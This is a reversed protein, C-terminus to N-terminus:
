QKEGFYKLRVKDWFVTKLYWWAQVPHRLCYAKDQKCNPAFYITAKKTLGGPLIVTLQTKQPQNHSFDLYQISQHQAKKWDSMVAVSPSLEVTPAASLSTVFGYVDYPVLVVRVPNRGAIAYQNHVYLITNEQSLERTKQEPFIFPYQTERATVLLEPQTTFSFQCSQQQCELQGQHSAQDNVLWKLTLSHHNQQHVLPHNAPLFAQYDVSTIDLPSLKFQTLGFTITLKQENKQQYSLEVTQDHQQVALSSSSQAPPLKLRSFQHEGTDQQPEPPLAVLEPPGFLKLVLNRETQPQEYWLSGAILYSVVWHGKSVAQYQSYPDVFDSDYVRLDDIFVQDQNFRLRVRYNPTTVWYVRQEPGTTLQKGAYVTIPQHSWFSKLASLSPFSVRQQAKLEALYALQELYVQQYNDAMSNELGILAFGPQLPQDIAQNLLKKFYGFGKGDGSYDNPQSTFASSTDGYNELPDTLTQRVILAQNAAQYDPVFLWQQSALYPYHAPGGDLSYSDVGWQERTIQHVQVQYKDVLYNLSPTDIMWATTFQPYQDFKTFYAKFLTDLLQQRVAPEYGLTFVHQAEYWNHENGQYEVGAAQALEPTIEILLGYNILQPHQKKLQQLYNVWVPDQLVDYRLSFFGPLNHKILAEVQLKLKALSGADCCEQGRVQNIILVQAPQHVSQQTQAQLLSPSCCSALLILIAIICFSM